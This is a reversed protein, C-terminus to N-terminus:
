WPLVHDSSWWQHEEASLIGAKIAPDERMLRRAEELPIRHFVIIGLMDDEGEVPGAAGLKGDRHLGEVYRQHDALVRAREGTKSDWASGRKLLLIPQVGM